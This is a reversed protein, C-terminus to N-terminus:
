QFNVHMLALFYLDRYRLHPFDGTIFLFRFRDFSGDKELAAAAIPSRAADRRGRTPAPSLREPLMTSHREPRTFGAIERM